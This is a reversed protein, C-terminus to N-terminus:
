GDLMKQYKVKLEEVLAMSIGFMPVMYLIRVLVGNFLALFGEDM